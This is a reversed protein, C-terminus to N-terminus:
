AAVLSQGCPEGGGPATMTFQGASGAAQLRLDAGVAAATLQQNFSSVMVCSLEADGARCWRCAPHCLVHHAYLFAVVVVIHRRVASCQLNCSNQLIAAYPAVGREGEQRHWGAASPPSLSVLMASGAAVVWLMALPPVV